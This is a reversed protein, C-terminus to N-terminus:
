SISDKSRGNENEGKEVITPITFTFMTGQNIKSDCWIRGGHKRILSQVFAMGMGEGKVDQKGARRFPAFVKEMDEEAIGRGNDAITYHIEDSDEKSSITIEGTREPDLYNVANNLINGTVQEMALRDAQVDDLQQLDVSIKREDIVHSLTKLTSKFVETMNLNELKIEKRDIRSLELLANILGEMRKVSNEIFDLAEPADENLAYNLDQRINEDLDGIKTNISNEITTIASRLEGAFGTMNVLPGRLDHSVIYAFRKVEENRQKLERAYREIKKEAEKRHVIESKLYDNVKYLEETREDVIKEIISTRNVSGAFYWSLFCTLLIGITLIINATLDGFISYYDGTPMLEIPIENNAIQLSSYFLFDRNIENENLQDTSNSTSEGGIKRSINEEIGEKIIYLNMYYDKIEFDRIMADFLDEIDLECSVFGRISKIRESKTVIAAGNNYIPYFLYIRNNNGPDRVQDDRIMSHIKGSDRSYNLTQLGVESQAFNFGLLEKNLNFPEVYIVPYYVKKESARVLHDASNLETIFFNYFVEEQVQMEIENRTDSSVYPIFMLSVIEPNRILTGQVFERFEDRSVYESAYFLGSLSKVLSTYHEIGNKFKILVNETNIRYQEVEHSYHFSVFFLFFASTILLGFFATCYVPYYKKFSFVRKIKAKLENPSLMIGGIQDM